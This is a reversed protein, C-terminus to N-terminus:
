RRATAARVADTLGADPVGGRVHGLVREDWQVEITVGHEASLAGAADLVALADGPAPRDLRLYGGTTRMGAGPDPDDFSGPAHQEWLRAAALARVRHRVEAALADDVPDAVFFVLFGAM